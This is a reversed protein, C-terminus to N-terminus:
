LIEYKGKVKEKINKKNLFLCIIISFSSFNKMPTISAYNNLLILNSFRLALLIWSELSFLDSFYIKM